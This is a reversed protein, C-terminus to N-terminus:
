NSFAAKRIKEATDSELNEVVLVRSKRREVYVVRNQKNEWTIKPEKTLPKRTFGKVRSSVTKAFAGAFEVADKETDWVSLQVWALDQGQKFVWVKDGDWGAAAKKEEDQDDVPDLLQLTMFEGLVDTYIKEWKEPVLKAIFDLSVETPPDRQDFYRAPHMIQETSEPIDAYIKDIRKWGGQRRGYNVFGLGKIYPFMLTERLAKPAEAFKPFQAASMQIMLQGFVGDMDLMSLDMEVGLNDMSDALMVLTAEGEVLAARAYMADSNGKIRDIFKDIDFHQDQLAHTLEHAIITEQMGPAIWDALYFTEKVPDYYGGVQEEYLAIIFEKFNMNRSIFGLAQMAQGEKEMEGPAYQEDLTKQLYARVKDKTTVEWRIPKKVELGRLKVVRQEVRKGLEILSEAGAGAWASRGAFLLLILVLGLRRESAKALIGRPKGPTAESWTNM